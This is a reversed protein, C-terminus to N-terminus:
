KCNQLVAIKEKNSNIKRHIVLILVVFGALLLGVDEIMGIEISIAFGLVSWLLPIILLFKTVPKDTWLLIGLTFITTSGPLGFTPSQPYVHGLIKSFIPYFILSYIILIVGVLGYLDYKITFFLRSGFVGYSFFLIGQLIFFASFLYAYSNIDSYFLLQYIIGVCLWLFGLSSSIITNSYKYTKITMYIILLALLNFIIQMPWIAQNYASYVQLLEETTFQLM